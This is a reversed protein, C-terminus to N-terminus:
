KVKKKGGEIHMQPQYYEAVMENPTEIGLGLPHFLQGHVAMTVFASFALIALRQLKMTLYYFKTNDGRKRRWGGM